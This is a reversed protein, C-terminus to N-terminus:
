AEINGVVEVIAGRVVISAVAVNALIAVNGVTLSRCTLIAVTLLVAAVTWTIVDM